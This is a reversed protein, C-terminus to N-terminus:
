TQNGTASYAVGSGKSLAVDLPQMMYASNPPICAFRINKEALNLLYESFHSTLNDGVLLKTGPSKSVHPLYLSEFWDEFSQREFWGSSSRNYRAGKPGGSVWTDWMNEARHVVYPPLVEGTASGCYMVSINTKSSSIIREPYKMGWRFFCKKVGPDDALGTEDFNRINNPSIGDVTKEYLDFFDTVVEPTIKAKEPKLNQCKKYVLHERNRKLFSKIWDIGPYNDAFCTVKRGLRDLYAKVM